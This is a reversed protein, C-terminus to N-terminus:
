REFMSKPKRLGVNIVLGIAMMNMLMSSGGYSVFPLPMGTNPLLGTAVGVNVFTQFAFMGAVGSAIYVGINDYARGATYICKLIILFMVVLVSVCGIFGFEEGIVSFIFDNYSYPLYSLQNFTGHYLGKGSLGGSGIAWISNRTQYYNPDDLDPNIASLIRGLQYDKLLKSLIFHNDSLLDIFIITGIPIIIALAIFIYKRSLNGVFLIVLMIVLTVLSASLSPQAKILAAPVFTAVFIIGLTKLNNITEQHKDVYKALFIIMFIKSFESPQIGFIWRNVNNGDGFFLVVVLLIINVIYIPMYFKCIIHYDLFAALLMFFIGTVFWIIQSEFEGDGDSVNIRTASGITIIGFVAIAFVLFFLIFDFSLLTKKSFM